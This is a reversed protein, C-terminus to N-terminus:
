VKLVKVKELLELRKELRQMHNKQALAVEGALAPLSSPNDNSNSTQAVKPAKIQIVRTPRPPSFLQLNEESLKSEEKEDAM